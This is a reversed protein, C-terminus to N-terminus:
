QIQIEIPPIMEFFGHLVSKMGFVTGSLGLVTRCLCLRSTNRFNGFVIALVAPSPFPGLGLDILEDRSYISQQAHM